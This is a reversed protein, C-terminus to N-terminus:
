LNNSQQPDTPWRHNGRGVTPCSVPRFHAAGRTNAGPDAASAPKKAHSKHWFASLAEVNEDNRLLTLGVRANRANLCVSLPSVARFDRLLQVQLDCPHSFVWLSRNVEIRRASRKPVGGRRVQQDKRDEGASAEAGDFVFEIEAMSFFDGAGRALRGM